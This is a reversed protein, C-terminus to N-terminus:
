LIEGRIDTVLKLIVMSFGLISIHYFSLKDTQEPPIFRGAHNINSSPVFM